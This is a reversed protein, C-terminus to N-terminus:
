LCESGAQILIWEPIPTKSGRPIQPEGGQNPYILALECTPMQKRADM